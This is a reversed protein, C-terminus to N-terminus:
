LRPVRHSVDIMDVVVDEVLKLSRLATLNDLWTMNIGDECEQRYPRVPARPVADLALVLIELSDHRLIQQATGILGAAKCHLVSDM